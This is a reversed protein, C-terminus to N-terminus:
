ERRLLSVVDLRTARLAPLACALLGIILLLLAAVMFTVRDFPSIEFMLAALLRAMNAASVLGLLEGAVLLLAGELLVLRFIDRKRSGLALRVGIERTRQLVLFSMLGYIGVATLVLATVAFLTLLLSNFRPRALATDVLEDLTRVNFLALGPDVSWIAKQLSSLVTRLDESSQAVVVFSGTPPAQLFPAYVAPPVPEGLGMFRVDEVMGVIERPRSLVVIRQGVPDGKFYHKAFAQNVIVVRPAQANDQQTFARGKLLSTGTAKFYDPSVPRFRAEEEEGEEPAPRDEFTVPTTWGPSLPHNVALSVSSLEPRSRVAEFFANYFAILEPWEPYHSWSFPYRTRPLTLEVTLVNEAKFGREVKQLRQFSALLLGAGVLLVLALAVETIVLLKRSASSRGRASNSTAGTQLLSRVDIRAGELAPALNILLGTGLTVLLTVALVAGDLGVANLRPMDYPALHTLLRLSALAIGMGLLAGLFSLILGEALFSAIIQGRGAGLAVWIAVRRQRELGRAVLLGAVNVVAILLLLCVASFVVVLSLRFEGVLEDYLRVLHVGRGANTKPHEQELRRMIASMEAQAREIGVGDALRAFVTLNHVRRPTSTPSIQLPRWCLESMGTPSFFHAPMVGIITHGVEDLFLQRGLVEPDGGFRGMWLEHSLLVVREGGPEGEAASFSRGLRPGIGLMSFYEPSAQGCAIQEPPQGPNNVNVEQFTYAVLFSFVGQQEKWDFFDPVSAGERDSARLQDNQWVVVLEDAEQYPLPRLLVAYFVSFLAAVTGIGLALTFVIAASIGPQRILARWALRICYSLIPM